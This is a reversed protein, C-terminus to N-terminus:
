WRRDDFLERADRTLVLEAELSAIRKHAAALEDSEVSPIGEILGCDILEQRQRQFLTAQCIGIDAVVAVPEGSRLRSVIQRRVTAPYM